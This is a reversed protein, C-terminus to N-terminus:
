LTQWELTEGNNNIIQNNVENSISSQVSYINQKLTFNANKLTTLLNKPLVDGFKIVYQWVNNINQTLEKIEYVNDIGFTSSVVRIYDGLNLEIDNAQLFADDPQGEFLELDKSQRTLYDQTAQQLRIKAADIYSQPMQIDVLIYSDGVAPFLLNNPYTGSEDTYNDLTFKKNVYDFVFTFNIGTLKGSIFNIKPTVGNIIQANVDFDISSDFFINTGSIGSVAGIREPKIDEFEQISEIRGYLNVNNELKSEGNVGDFCLRNETLIDSDFVTRPPMNKSSGYGYVVTEINESEVRSRVLDRFGSFRGVQFTLYSDATKDNFHLTKGDLYWGFGLRNSIETIAEFANWNNFQITATGTSKYAGAVYGSSNRNLNEVIFNLFTQATGTLSFQYDTYFGGTAKQTSLFIKTKRLEHLPGEFICEYRYDMPSETLRPKKNLIYIQGTKAFTIYDGIKLEVYNVLTFNLRVIDESQKKQSLESADDPKVQVVLTNNRFISYEM